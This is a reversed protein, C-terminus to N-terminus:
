AEGAAGAGGEGLPLLEAAPLWGEKAARGLLAEVALPAKPADLAEDALRDRVRGLGLALQTQSVAGSAALAALLDGAAAVAPDAAVGGGGGSSAAAAASASSL